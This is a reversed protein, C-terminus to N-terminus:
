APLACPVWCAACRAEYSDAAGVVIRDATHHHPHAHGKGQRVDLHERTIRQTRHADAGCRVCVAQLKTVDDALALAGAMAEFAAGRYDLDLGAVVVHRGAALLARLWAALADAPFFQAEDVAVLAVRPPIRPFAVDSDAGDVDVRVTTVLRALAPEVCRGTHTAVRPTRTDTSPRVLLVARHARATREVADLLQSTKGAFMPGAIVRLHGAPASEPTPAPVTRTPSHPLKPTARPRRPHSPM